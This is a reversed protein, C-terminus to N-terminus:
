LTSGLGFDARREDRTVEQVRKIAHLLNQLALHERQTPNDGPWLHVILVPRACEESHRTRGLYDVQVNLRNAGEELSL